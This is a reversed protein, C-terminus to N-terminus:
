VPGIDSGLCQDVHVTDTKPPSGIGNIDLADAKVHIGPDEGDRTNNERTSPVPEPPEYSTDLPNSTDQFFPSLAPFSRLFVRDSVRSRPASLVFGVRTEQTPQKRFRCPKV